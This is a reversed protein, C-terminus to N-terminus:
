QLVGGECLDPRWAGCGNESPDRYMPSGDPCLLLEQTCDVIEPPGEVFGGAEVCGLAVNFVYGPPCSTTICRGDILLEGPECVINAHVGHVCTYGCTPYPNNVPTQTLSCAVFMPAPCVGVEQVLVNKSAVSSTGRTATVTITSTSNEGTELPGLTGLFTHRVTGGSPAFNLCNQVGPDCVETAVLEADTLTDVSSGDGWNITYIINLDQVPDREVRLAYSTNENVEPDGSLILGTPGDQGGEGLVCTYGCSPYTGLVASYGEQCFPIAGDSCVGGGVNVAVNVPAEDCAGLSTASFGSQSIILNKVNGTSVSKTSAFELCASAYKVTTAGVTRTITPQLSGRPYIISVPGLSPSTRSCSSPSFPRFSSDAACTNRLYFGDPITVTKTIEDNAKFLGDGIDLIGTLSLTTTAIDKFEFFSTTTAPDFYLGLGGNGGATSDNTTARLQSDRVIGQIDSVTNALEIKTASSPYSSLLVTTLLAFLGLTVMMDILTFGRAGEEKEEIKKIRKFSTAVTKFFSKVKM